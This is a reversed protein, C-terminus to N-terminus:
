KLWNNSNKRNSYDLLNNPYNIWDEHLIIQNVSNLTLISTFQMSEFSSGGWEFSTFYGSAVIHSEDTVLREIVLALSDKFVLDPNNWNFFDMLATKGIIKEGFMYDKLIVSDAYFSMFDDFNQHESYTQYYKEAIAKLDNDKHSCSILLFGCLIPLITLSNIKKM